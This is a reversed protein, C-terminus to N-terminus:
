PMMMGEFSQANENCAFCIGSDPINLSRVANKMAKVYEYEFQNRTAITQELNGYTFWNLRSGTNSALKQFLMESGLLYLLPTKLFQKNECLFQEISCFVQSDIAIGQGLGAFSVNEFTPDAGLGMKAPSIRSYDNIGSGSWSPYYNCDGDFWNYLNDTTIITGLVTSNIGIFLEIAETELGFELDVPITILGKTIPFDFTRLLKENQLDYIQISSNGEFVDGVISSIYVQVSKLYFKVFRSIPLYVYVGRLTSEPGLLEYKRPKQLRPTQYITKNFGAKAYDFLYMQFDQAFRLLARTQVDDWVGIFTQQESNAIKDALETSMGALNNLYLGSAPADQSCHRIGIYDKLCDV